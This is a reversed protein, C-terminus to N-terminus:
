NQNFGIWRNSAPRATIKAATAPYKRIPESLIWADESTELWKDKRLGSFYTVLIACTSSRVGCDTASRRMGRIIEEREIRMANTNAHIQRSRPIEQYGFKAMAAPMTPKKMAALM